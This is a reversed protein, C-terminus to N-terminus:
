TTTQFSGFQGGPRAVFTILTDDQTEIIISVNSSQDLIDTIVSGHLM